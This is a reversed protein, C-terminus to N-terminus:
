SGAPSNRGSLRAVPALGDVFETTIIDRGKALGASLLHTATFDPRGAQREEVSVAVPVATREHRYDEEKLASDTM